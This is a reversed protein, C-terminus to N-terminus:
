QMATADDRAAGSDADASLIMSYALHTGHTLAAIRPQESSERPSGCAFSLVALIGLVFLKCERM